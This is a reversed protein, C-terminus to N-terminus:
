FSGHKAYIIHPQLVKTVESSKVGHSHCVKYIECFGDLVDLQVDVLENIEELCLDTHGAVLTDDALVTVDSNIAALDQDGGLIVLEVESLAIGAIKGAFKDVSAVLTCITVHEPNQLVTNVAILQDVTRDLVLLFLLSLYLHALNM